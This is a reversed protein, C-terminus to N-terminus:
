EALPRTALGFTANGELHGLEGIGGGVNLSIKRVKQMSGFIAVM